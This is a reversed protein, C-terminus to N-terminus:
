RFAVHSSKNPWWLKWSHMLGYIILSLPYGNSGHNITNWLCVLTQCEMKSAKYLWCNLWSLTKTSFLKSMYFYNEFNLSWTWSPHALEHHPQKINYTARYSKWHSHMLMLSSTCCNSSFFTLSTLPPTVNTLCPSWSWTFWSSVFKIKYNPTINPHILMNCYLM